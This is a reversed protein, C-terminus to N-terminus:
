LCPIPIPILGELVMKVEIQTGVPLEENLTAQWTTVINAGENIVIPYPEFSWQDISMPEPSGECFGYEFEDPDGRRSREINVGFSRMVEAFSAAVSTALLVSFM